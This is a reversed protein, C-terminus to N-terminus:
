IITSRNKYVKSEYLDKKIEEKSYKRGCMDCFYYRGALFDILDSIAKDEVTDYKEDNKELLKICWDITYSRIGFDANKLSRIQEDKMERIIQGFM